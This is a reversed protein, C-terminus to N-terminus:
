GIGTTALRKASVTHGHCATEKLWDALLWVSAGWFAGGIGRGSRAEWTDCIAPLTHGNSEESERERGRLGNRGLRRGLVRDRNEAGKGDGEGKRERGGIPGEQNETTRQNQLKQLPAGTDTRETTSSLPTPPPPAAHQCIPSHPLNTEWIM